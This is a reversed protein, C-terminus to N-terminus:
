AAGLVLPAQPVIVQLGAEPENKGIPAVVTLQLGVDPEAQENVTVTCSVALKSTQKCSLELEEVVRDNLLVV